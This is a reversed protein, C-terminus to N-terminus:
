DSTPCRGTFCVGGRSPGFSIERREEWCWTGAQSWPMLVQPRVCRVRTVGVRASSGSFKVCLPTVLRERMTRFRVAVFCETTTCNHKGRKRGLANIYV